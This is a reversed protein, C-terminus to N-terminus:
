PLRRLWGLATPGSAQKDWVIWCWDATGGGAKNGALLYEGPPCSPRPTIIWVRAPPHESFLGNARGDGALFKVDLFACVKKEAVKLAKRVFAEAGKARYFPPNMVINAWAPWPKADDLFDHLGLHWDTGPPVRMAVDTGWASLGAARLTTVINGAGASPDLIQGSFTEASLLQATASPPEQYWDLGDREWVHAKKEVASM